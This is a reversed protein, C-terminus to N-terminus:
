DPCWVAERQLVSGTDQQIGSADSVGILTGDVTFSRGDGCYDARLMRVCARHTEHQSPIWPSYGYEICKGVSSGVCAIDLGGGEEPVGTGASVRRPLLYAGDPCLSQTPGAASSVEIDLAWLLLTKPRIGAIRLQVPLGDELTADMRAGLLFALGFVSTGLNTGTGSTGNAGLGAFPNFSAFGGGGYSYSNFLNHSSGSTLSASPSVYGLSSGLYSGRQATQAWATSASLM